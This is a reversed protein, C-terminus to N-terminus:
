NSRVRQWRHQGAGSLLANSIAIAVGRSEHFSFSVNTAMKTPPPIAPRSM